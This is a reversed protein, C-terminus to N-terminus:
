PETAPRAHQPPPSQSSTALQSMRARRETFQTPPSNVAYCDLPARGERNEFNLPSRFIHPQKKRETIQVITRNSTKRVTITVIPKVIGVPVDESALRIFYKKVNLLRVKSPREYSGKAKSFIPHSVFTDLLQNSRRM